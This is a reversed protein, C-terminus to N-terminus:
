KTADNDRGLARQKEQPGGLPRLSRFPSQFPRQFHPDLPHEATTAERANARQVTPVDVFNNSMNVLESKAGYDKRTLSVCNIDAQKM